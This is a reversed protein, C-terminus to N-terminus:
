PRVCKTADATITEMNKNWELREQLNLKDLGGGDEIERNTDQLTQAAHCAELTSHRLAETALPRLKASRAVRTAYLAQYIQRVSAGSKLIIEPYRRILVAIESERARASKALDDQNEQIQGLEEDMDKIEAIGNTLTTQQEATLQMGLLLVSAIM